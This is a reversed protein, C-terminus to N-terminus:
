VSELEFAVRWDVETSPGLGEGQRHYTLTEAVAYRGPADFAHGALADRGFEPRLEYRKEVTEGPDIPTTHGIDCTFMTAEGGTDDFGVCGEEAYDRWLLAREDGPAEAWLVSFPPVTGSFVERTHEGTNTLSLAVAAPDDPALRDDVLDAAFELAPERDPHARYVDIGWHTATDGPETDAEWTFFDVRETLADIGPPIEERWVTGESLVAEVTARLEPDDVDSVDTVTQEGAEREVAATSYVATIRLYYPEPPAVKTTSVDFESVVFQGGSTATGAPDDTTTTDTTSPATGGRSLCGALLAAGASALLTRRRM